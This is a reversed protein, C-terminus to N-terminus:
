NVIQMFRLQLFPHETIQLIVVRLFVVIFSPNM